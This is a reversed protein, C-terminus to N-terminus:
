RAGGGIGAPIGVLELDPLRALRDRRLEVQRHTDRPRALAPGAHLRGLRDHHDVLIRLRGYEFQGVEPDYAVQEVDDRLEGVLDRPAPLGSRRAGTSVPKGPVAVLSPATM